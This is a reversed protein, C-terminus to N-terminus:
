RRWFRRTSAQILLINAVTTYALAVIFSMSAAAFCAGVILGPRGMERFSRVTAAQGDRLVLFILLFLLAFYSRWFVITWSDQVEIYRGITGGLSWLLASGAVLLVGLGFHDKQATL